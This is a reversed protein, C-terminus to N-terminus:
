RAAEAATISRSRLGSRMPRGERARPTPLADARSPRGQGVREDTGEGAGRGPPRQARSRRDRAGDAGSRNAGIPMRAAGATIKGANIYAKVTGAAEVTAAHRRPQPEQRRGQRHGRPQSPVREGAGSLRRRKLRIPIPVSRERHHRARAGRQREGGARQHCRICARARMAACRREGAIIEFRDARARGGRDAARHRARPDLRGARRARRGFLQPASQASQTQSIRDARPTSQARSPRPLKLASTASPLPWRGQDHDATM